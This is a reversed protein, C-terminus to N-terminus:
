RDRMAEARAISKWHNGRTNVSRTTFPTGNQSDTKGNAASQMLAAAIAAVKEGTGNVTSVTTAPVGLMRDLYDTDINATQFEGNELIRRFLGLNNAIGGIFYEDLARRL